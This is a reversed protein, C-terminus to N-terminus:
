GSTKATGALLWTVPNISKIMKESVEGDRQNKNQDDCLAEGLKSRAPEACNSVLM